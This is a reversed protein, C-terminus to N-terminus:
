PRAARELLLADTKDDSMKCFEEVRGQEPPVRAIGLQGSLTLSRYANLLILFELRQARNLSGRLRAVDSAGLGAPPKNLVSLDSWAASEDDMWSTFQPLQAYYRSMLALEQRPFHTLAQSSRESEWESSSLLAGPGGHFVTFASPKTRADLSDIIVQAEAMMKDMCPAIAIRRAFWRNNTAIEAVIATRGIEVEHRWHVYEVLQELSIAILIGAVITGLETFFEKWTKAAHPKHIEMPSDKTTNGVQQPPIQAPDSSTVTKEARDLDSRDEESM